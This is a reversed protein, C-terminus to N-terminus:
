VILKRLRNTVTETLLVLAVVVIIIAMAQDYKFLNINTDILVGIGGAGVLGLVVSARINIEFSFLTWNIWAPLFNPIIGHIIMQFYSAGSAKLAELNQEPIEDIAEGYSKGLFGVTVFILALIGVLGGIGFIYVLLAGWIVFPINRIVTLAGLVILRISQFPNTHRSVLLGLLFAIGTAFYTAIIAFGITEVITPLFSCINAFEPPFFKTFFFSIFHPLGVVLETLSVGLFQISIIFLSSLLIGIFLWRYSSQANLSISTNQVKATTM